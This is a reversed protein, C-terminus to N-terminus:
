EDNWDLEITNNCEPCIIEEENEDINASFEFNCYPCTINFDWEEDEYIDKFITEINENLNEMKSEIETMREEYKKQRKLIKKIKKEEQEELENLAKIVVKILGDSRKLVYNLDEKNQINDELDKIFKKFENCIEEIM